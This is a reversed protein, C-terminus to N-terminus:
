SIDRWTITENANKLHNKLRRNADQELHSDKQLIANAVNRVFEILKSDKSLEVMKLSLPIGSQQTGDLDGQGRLKMDTEAIEFGDNTRVMTEMRRRTTDGLEYKTILICQSQKNGRGVRGRLQHLQSLGFREASEIVITTANPVDIGVEIVTTAVLIQAQGKAFLQMEEEKEQPKMKGHVMAILYKPPPFYSQLTQYGSMLNEFDLTESEDILPYIIYVQEGQEIKDRLFGYVRIRKDTYTHKTIIPKRGPPMEDIVSVDLDGYLTMALTRPIPTATMVLIHPPNNDNKNWMKARQAVGFRHQEDIIVLGLQKFQVSDEILAHTGIIIHTRGSLLGEHIETREKKKTSGTLLTVEVPLGKLMKTISKYHQIALVETPAMLASQYGNDAAILMTMLAVLTKGSGVDGQLLRNMQKGHATNHRIEKIVRKQANTLEFPLHHKYFDNFLDGVTEFIFGNNQNELILKKQLLRLQIWLIEEFKLRYRAKELLALNSPLHIHKLTEARSLLNYKKLLYDPLTEPIKSYIEPIITKFINVFIKNTIYNKKLTETLPYVPMFPAQYGAKYTDWLVVEPHIFSINGKFLNPRGYILYTKNPKISDQIWKIGRFWVIQAEGTEDSLRATLRKKGKTITQFDSIRGKVQIMASTSTIEQITYIQSRNEYRFPFYSLFDEVTHLDLESALLNARKEGIGKIYQIKTSLEM